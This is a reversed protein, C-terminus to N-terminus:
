KPQIAINDAFVQGKSTKFAWFLIKIAKVNKAVKYEKSYSQWAQGGKSFLRVLSPNYPMKAEADPFEVVFIGFNGDLESLIDASIDYKQFESVTIVPSWARIHDKNEQLATIKLSKGSKSAKEATIESQKELIWGSTGEEFNWSFAKGPEAVPEPPPLPKPDAVGAASVLFEALKDAVLQHGAANPHATDAMYEAAFKAKGVGKFLKHVDFIPLEMEAALERMAQAFDDMMTFRAGTGPGTAFLLIATKGQTFACIREIYDKMTKKYYEATIGGSKDNYGYWITVLDPAGAVFDRGLWARGDNTRAGGVARNICTISDTKLWQRLLLETRISYRENVKDALSTGATISDGQCQITVPQRNKLKDLVGQFPASKFAPRSAPAVPELVVNTVTFSHAPITANDFWINWRCGFRINNIGCPPLGDPEGILGIQNEPIFDAWAVTYKVWDTNKLPFFYVYSYSGYRNNFSIPAWADSGDGKVQFSVGQYQNWADLEADDFPLGKFVTGPLTIAIAKGGEIGEAAEIKAKSAAKWLEPKSFDEIVIPDLALCCVSLLTLISLLHKM